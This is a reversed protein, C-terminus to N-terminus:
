WVDTKLLQIQDGETEHIQLIEKFSLITVAANTMIAINTNVTPRTSTFVSVHSNWRPMWKRPRFNWFIKLVRDSFWSDRPDWFVGCLLVTNNHFLKVHQHLRKWNFVSVSFIITPMDMQSAKRKWPLRFEKGQGHDSDDYHVTLWKYLDTTKELSHQFM